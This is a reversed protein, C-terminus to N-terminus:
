LVSRALEMNRRSRLNRGTIGEPFLCNVQGMKEELSLRSLLDAAREQPTLNVNLYKEM